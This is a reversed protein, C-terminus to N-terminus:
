KKKFIKTGDRYGSLNQYWDKYTTGSTQSWNSFKLHTENVPRSELPYEFTLPLNIAWPLNNGSKYYRGKSPVSSDAATGLLSLDAKSTPLHDPLHIEIDRTGDVFIFANFPAYGLDAMKVPTTFRITATVEVPQTYTDTARTNVFSTTNFLSKADTFLIVTARQQGAETGNTNKSIETDRINTGTVSEVLSPSIPLEIGFGNRYNAGIARVLFKARCEIAANSTNTVFQFNYDVVLDNLDYDGKGPWMDEFALSGYINEGPNYVDFAKAADTPYKDNKDIVGDGDTDTGAVTKATGLNSDNAVASYPNATVFFVADNFDNDGGPRSLDEFGLLLLERADNKLLVVQQRYAPDTYTNLAKTSYKIEPREAVASGTWGNPILFWGIGTNPPFRGLHVKNGSRLNGGSGALSVNPFIVTRKTLQSVSTPLNALDYTYFGLTNMYGAGEHVFTVWIDASDLLRTDTIINDAIYQPNNTPVPAREPLSANVLDLLDQPIYDNVTELYNPVGQNDNSGMFSFAAASRGSSSKVRGGTNSHAPENKGGLIIENMGSRIWVQSNAALGLYDTRIVISDIFDPLTGNFFANGNGDTVGNGLSVETTDLRFGYELIVNKLPKNGNDLTTVQLDFEKSTSFDFNEPISLQDILGVTEDKFVQVCSTLASFVCVFAMIKKM